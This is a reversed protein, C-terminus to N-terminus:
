KVEDPRPTTPYLEGLITEIEDLSVLVFPRLNSMDVRESNAKTRLDSVSVLNASVAASRWFRCFAYRDGEVIATIFGYEIEDGNIAAPNENLDIHNPVYMIQSGRELKDTKVLPM